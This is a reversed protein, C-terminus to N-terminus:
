DAAAQAHFINDQSPAPRRASGAHQTHAAPSPALTAQSTPAGLAQAAFLTSLQQQMQQMQQQLQALVANTSPTGTKLAPSQALPPPVSGQTRLEGSEAPHRRSPAEEPAQCHPPAQHCQKTPM